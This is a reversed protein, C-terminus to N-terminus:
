TDHQDEGVAVVAIIKGDVWRHSAVTITAM